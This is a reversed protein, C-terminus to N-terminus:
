FSQLNDLIRHAVKRYVNVGSAEIGSPVTAEGPKPDDLLSADVGHCLGNAFAGPIAHGQSSFQSFGTNILRGNRDLQIREGELNWWDPSDEETDPGDLIPIHRRTYGRALVIVGDPHDNKLRGLVDHALANHPVPVLEVCQEEGSLIRRALEKAPGRLGDFRHVKGDSLQASDLPYKDSRADEVSAYFIKVPCDGVASGVKQRVYMRLGGYPFYSGDKLKLLEDAASFASSGGGVISVRPLAQNKLIEQIDPLTLGSLVEGSTFMKRKEGKGDFDKRTENDSIWEEGGTAIIVNKSVINGAGLCHSSSRWHTQYLVGDRGEFAEVKIAKREHLIKLSPAFFARVLEGIEAQFEAVARLPITSRGERQFREIARGASRNLVAGFYGDTRIGELYEQPPSNSEIRKGYYAFGGAGFSSPIGADIIAVGQDILDRLQGKADAAVLTALGAPGRGIIATGYIPSGNFHETSKM